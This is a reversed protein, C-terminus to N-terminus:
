YADLGSVFAGFDGEDVHVFFVEGGATEDIGLTDCERGVGRTVDHGLGHVNALGPVRCSRLGDNKDVLWVVQAKKICRLIFQLKSRCRRLPVRPDDAGTGRVRCQRPQADYRSGVPTTKDGGWAVATNHSQKCLGKLRQLVTDLAHTTLLGGHSRTYRLTAVLAPKAPSNIEERVAQKNM